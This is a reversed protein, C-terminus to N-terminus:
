LSFTGLRYRETQDPDMSELPLIGESSDDWVRVDIEGSKLFVFYGSRPGSPLAYYVFHLGPPIGSLGKFKPGTTWSNYDIGFTIGPPANLFLISAGLLTM